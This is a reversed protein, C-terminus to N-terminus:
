TPNYRRKRLETLEDLTLRTSTLTRQPAKLVTAPEACFRPKSFYVSSRFGYGMWEMRPLISSSEKRTIINMLISMCPSGQWNLPLYKVKWHLHHPNSGQDPALDMGREEQTLVGFRLVSPCQLLNLVLITWMLFDKFPSCIHM